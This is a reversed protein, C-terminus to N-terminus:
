MERVDERLVDDMAQRRVVLRHVGDRAFAVAPKAFRNYNSAMSYTYAGATALTLLDGVRLDRPLEATALEDNECSRGCVTTPVLPAHSTRGALAPLHTAGYLAPRPNDAMGGDVIAFRRQGHTKVSAVRYLSTGAAAVIARGPEIGIRLEPLGRAAAGDRARAAVARLTARLDLVPERATAPVGFGGGVVLQDFAVGASAAAAALELLADLNALFPAADVVQSGVHAHLGRLRLGPAAAAAAIAAPVDGSPFGFKTDEGGTRVFAHTHAEIGTNARLLVDIPRAPRLAALRALEEANDVITRGVRGAEIAALEADTKGCGHMVLRETPFAAAEATLLEGLSCVDLGLASAALKRAFAVCLFAKGAYAVDIGLEAGLAGFTAIREDLAAEDFALLPTDYAAALMAVPVGGIRAERAPAALDARM